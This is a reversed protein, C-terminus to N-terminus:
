IFLHSFVRVLYIIQFYDYAVELVFEAQIVSGSVKAELIASDFDEVLSAQGFVGYCIILYFNM